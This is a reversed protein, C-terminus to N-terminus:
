NTLTARPHLKQWDVLVGKALRLMRADRTDLRRVAQSYTFWDLEAFGLDQYPGKQAILYYIYRQNVGKGNLNGKGLARGAEELVRVKMGGAEGMLRIISSVSSEGRRVKTKPIEWSSDKEMKVLLWSFGDKRKSVIVGGSIMQEDKKM